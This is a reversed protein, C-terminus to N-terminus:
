IQIRKVDICSEKCYRFVYDVFGFGIIKYVVEKVIIDKKEEDLQIEVGKKLLFELELKDNKYNIEELIVVVVENEDEKLVLEIVFEKEKLKEKKMEKEVFVVM